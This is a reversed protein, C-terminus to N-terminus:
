PLVSSTCGEDVETGLLSSALMSGYVAGKSPIGSSKCSGDEMCICLTLPTVTLILHQHGHELVLSSQSCDSMCAINQM